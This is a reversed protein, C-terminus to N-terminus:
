AASRDNGSGATKTMVGQTSESSAVSEDEATADNTAFPLFVSCCTGHSAEDTRSRVRLSGQHKQVIGQSVWLGLGTGKSDKTSFFPEFIQPMNEAPIGCGDDAVIVRIGEREQGDHGYRVRIYINGPGSIAEIANLVLNSFVQRLESPFAALPGVDSFDRHVSIRGQEIRADYAALVEEFLQPV